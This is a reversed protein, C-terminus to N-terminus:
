FRGGLTIGAGQPGLLPALTPKPKPKPKPQSHARANQGRESTKPAGPARPASRQLRRSRILLGTGVVLSAGAAIGTGVSIMQLADSTAYSEEIAHVVPTPIDVGQADFDERVRLLMNWLGLSYLGSVVSTLALAPTLALLTIGAGRGSRHKQRDDAPSGWARLPEPIGLNGLLLPVRPKEAPLVCHVREPFDKLQDHELELVELRQADSLRKQKRLWESFRFPRCIDESLGAAFARKWASDAYLLLMPDLSQRTLSEWIKAAGVFNGTEELMEAHARAAEQQSPVPASEPLPEAAVALGCGLALVTLALASARFFVSDLPSHSFIVPV